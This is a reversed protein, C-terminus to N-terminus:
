NRNFGGGGFAGGTGERVVQGDYEIGAANTGFVYGNQRDLLGDIIVLFADTDNLRSDRRSDTVIIGGPNDDYAIVGIYLATETYGVFVETRQTAPQGEDPKVQWFGTAPTVGNWASDGQVRGDIVPAVPLEYAQMEPPSEPPLVISTSAHAVLTLLSLM